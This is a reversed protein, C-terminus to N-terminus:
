RKACGSNSRTPRATPSGSWCRATRRGRGPGPVGRSQAMGVAHGVQAQGGLRGGDRGCQRVHRRARSLLAVLQGSRAPRRSPTKLQFQDPARAEPIFINAPEPCGGRADLRVRRRTGGAIMTDMPRSGECPHHHAPSTKRHPTLNLGVGPSRARLSGHALSQDARIRRSPSPNTASQGSNSTALWPSVM